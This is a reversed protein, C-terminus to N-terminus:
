RSSVALVSQLAVASSYLEDARSPTLTKFWFQAVLHDQYDWSVAKGYIFLVADSTEGCHSCTQLALTAHCDPKANNSRFFVGGCSCAIGGKVSLSKSLNAEM